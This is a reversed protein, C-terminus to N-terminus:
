PFYSDFQNQKCESFPDVRFPFFISGKPLGMKLLPNMYLFVDHIHLCISSEPATEDPDVNNPMGSCIKLFMQM